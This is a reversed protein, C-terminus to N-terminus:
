KDREPRFPYRAMLITNVIGCLALFVLMEVYGYYRIIGDAWVFIIWIWGVMKANVGISLLTRRWGRPLHRPVYVGVWFMLLMGVAWIIRYVLMAYAPYETM